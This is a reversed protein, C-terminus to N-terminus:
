DVCLKWKNFVHNYVCLREQVMEEGFLVRIDLSDQLTKIYLLGQYVDTMLDYVKYVDTQLGYELRKMEKCEMLELKFYEWDFQRLTTQLFGTMKYKFNDRFVKTNMSKINLRPSLRWKYKPHFLMTKLQEVIDFLMMYRLDYELNIMGDKWFIDSLMCINKQIDHSNSTFLVVHLIMEPFKHSYLDCEIAFDLHRGYVSYFYFYVFSSQTMVYVLFREKTAPIMYVSNEVIDNGSNIKELYHALNERCKHYLAVTELEKGSKFKVPM